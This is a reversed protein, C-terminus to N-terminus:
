RLIIIAEQSLIKLIILDMLRILFNQDSTLSHIIPFVASLSAVEMILIFINFVVLVFFIKKQYSSLLKWIKNFLM